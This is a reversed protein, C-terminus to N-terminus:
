PKFGFHTCFRSHSCDCYNLQIMDSFVCTTLLYILFFKILLVSNFLNFVTSVLPSIMSLIMKAKGCM